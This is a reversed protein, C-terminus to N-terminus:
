YGIPVIFPQPAVNAPSTLTHVAGCLRLFEAVGVGYTLVGSYRGSRLAVDTTGNASPRFQVTWALKIETTGTKWKWSLANVAADLMANNNLADVEEGDQSFWKARGFSKAKLIVSFPVSGSLTATHLGPMALMGDYPQVFSHAFGQTDFWFVQADDISVTGGVFAKAMSGFTGAVTPEEGMSTVNLVRAGSQQAEDVIADRQRTRAKEAGANRFGM